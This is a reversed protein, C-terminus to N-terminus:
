LLNLTNFISQRRNLHPLHTSLFDKSSRIRLGLSPGPLPGPLPPSLCYLWYWWITEMQGLEQPTPGINKPLFCLREMVEALGAGPLWGRETIRQYGIQKSGVFGALLSFPHSLPSASLAARPAVWVRHVQCWQPLPFARIQYVEDMPYATSCVASHQTLQNILSCRLVLLIEHPVATGFYTGVALSVHVQRRAPWM